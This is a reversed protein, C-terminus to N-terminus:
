VIHTNTCTSSSRPALQYKIFSSTALSFPPPPCPSVRKPCAIIQRTRSESLSLPHHHHHHHNKVDRRYFTNVIHYTSHLPVTTNATRLFLGTCDVGETHIARTVSNNAISNIRRDPRIIHTPIYPPARVDRGPPRYTTM